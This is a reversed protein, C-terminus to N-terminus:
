NFIRKSENWYADMEELKSEDIKKGNEELKKEIYNFRKIFKSITKRLANEPNIKLFRAYNVLAFFVDGIENELEENVEIKGGSDSGDKAIVKEAKLQHAEPQSKQHKGSSDSRGEASVEERHMEEIEEVVKKWIDEKKNWDFGVKSAKEQIRYARQLAPMIEPVGDLVSKRGEKLKISEWNRKVHESNEVVVDGFVHPHRRILKEKISTIVDELKFNDNEEAIISHFIVHLLLDGLEKKLDEYDKNDISEVVEYAEEITAAKISDNTQERDWPCEVRLRRVIDVLERFKSEIM